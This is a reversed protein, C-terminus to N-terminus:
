YQRMLGVLVGQIKVREQSFIQTEYDKNAPELAVMTGRRRLHKLTVESEDVLAVVIQGNEAHETAKIVVIDGDMIGDEIMSLGEVRLAYFEGAGVFQPPVMMRDQEDRLAEIPTGAAIKGHYPISFGDEGMLISTKAQASKTVNATSIEKAPPLRVLEIARARHPLRRIFKREELAAVLRHIGSKSHLGIAERMEDYSPCFGHKQLYTEIYHLLEVQRRTLM